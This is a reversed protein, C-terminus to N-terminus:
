RLGLKGFMRQLRSFELIRIGSEGRCLILLKSQDSSFQMKIAASTLTDLEFNPRLDTGDVQWFQLFGSDDASVLTEGDPSMAVSTVPAQHHAYTEREFNESAQLDFAVLEGNRKGAVAKSLSKDAAVAVFEHRNEHDVTIRMGKTLLQEDGSKDLRFLQGRRTGAILFEENGVVDRIATANNIVDTWEWESSKDLSPSWHLTNHRDAHVLSGDPLRWFKELREAERNVEAIILHMVTETGEEKAIREPLQVEVNTLKRLEEPGFADFFHCQWGPGYIHQDIASISHSQDGYNIHISEDSRLKARDCNVALGVHMEAGNALKLSAPIDFRSTGPSAEIRKPMGSLKAGSFGDEGLRLWCGPRSFAALIEGNLMTSLCHVVIGMRDYSIRPSVITTWSQIRDGDKLDFRTVRLTRRTSAHSDLIQVSRNDSSIDFDNVPSAGTRISHFYPQHKDCAVNQVEFLEVGEGDAIAALNSKALWTVPSVSKNEISFSSVIKGSLGDWLGVLNPDLASIIQTDKAAFVPHYIQRSNLHLPVDLQRVPLGSVTNYFRFDYLGTGAASGLLASGDGTVAIQGFANPMTKVRVPDGGFPNRYLYRGQTFLIEGSQIQSVFSVNTSPISKWSPLPDTGDHIQLFDRNTTGLAYLRNDVSVALSGVGKSTVSNLHRAPKNEKNDLDWIWIEGHRSGAAIQKGDPSFCVSRFGEARNHGSLGLGAMFNRITGDFASGTWERFLEVQASGTEDRGVKYVHVRCGAKARIEAIALMQGTPDVAIDAADFGEAFRKVSRWDNSVAVAAALTRLEYADKEVGDTEALAALRDRASWTWGIEGRRRYERVSAINAFYEQQAANSADHRAQQQAKSLEAQQILQYPVGVALTLILACTMAISTALLPHRRLWRVGIGLAGISRAHIPKHDLLRQLDEALEHASQYRKSSEKELCKLCITNLDNSVESNLKQPAVPLETAIQQLAVIPDAAQFPPRGTLCRYLVAGLSYVDSRSCVEDSAGRAQEPSMYSVTGLIDGSDTLTLDRGEFKALGFDSIRPVGRSDIMINSPKLDRHIIGNRHAYELGTAVSVVIEAADAGSLPKEALQQSLTTGDVYEMTFWPRGNDTGSELLPIINPHVLSAAAKTEREFRHLLEIERPRPNSDPSRFSDPVTKLAVTRGLRADRALYVVGMGGRGLEKILVYNGIRPQTAGTPYSESGAAGAALTSSDALPSTRPKLLSIEEPKLGFRDIYDQLSLESDGARFRYELDVRVLEPLLEERIIPSAATLWKALDPSKGSAWELEFADCISDIQSYDTPQNM